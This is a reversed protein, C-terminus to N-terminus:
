PGCSLLGKLVGPQLAFSLLARLPLGKVSRNDLTNLYKGTVHSACHCKGLATRLVGRYHYRRVGRCDAGPLVALAPQTHCQPGCSCDSPKPVDPSSRRSEGRWREVM